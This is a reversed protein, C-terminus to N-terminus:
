SSEFGPRAREDGGVKSFIGVARKLHTRSEDTRGPAHHLDALFIELAAERHRDGQGARLIPRRRSSSRARPRLRLSQAMFVVERMM